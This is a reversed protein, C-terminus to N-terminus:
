DRLPLQLHARTEAISAVEGGIDHVLRTAKEVLDGNSRAMEGERLYFNDELGVRINGGLTIAAAVM